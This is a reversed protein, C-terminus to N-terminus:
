HLPHYGLQSLAQQIQHPLHVVEELLSEGGIQM